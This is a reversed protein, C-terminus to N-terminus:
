RDALKEELINLLVDPNVPKGVFADAGEETARACNEHTPSGTVVIKVTKPTRHQIIPLLDTGEMDPLRIDILAADYSNAELKEIAERGTEAAVVGYGKKEFLRTFVRLIAKDDDIILITRKTETM